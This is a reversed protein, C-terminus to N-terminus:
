TNITLSTSSIPDCFGTTNAREKIGLVSSVFDIRLIPEFGNPSIKNLSGSMLRPCKSTPFKLVVHALRDVKVIPV